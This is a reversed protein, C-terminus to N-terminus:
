AARGSRRVPRELHRRLSQPLAARRVVRAEAGVAHVHQRRDPRRVRHRPLGGGGPAVGGPLARGIAEHHQGQPGRDGQAPRGAARVRLRLPRHAREGQPHHAQDVRGRRPRGHARDRRLPGRHERARGCPRRGRLSVASGPHEGGAPPERLPRTGQAPGRECQPVRFRRSHHDPGQPGGQHRPHLRHGIQPLPTGYKEMVDAGAEMDVWEIRVGTAAVAVKTAAMIEPGIGDGPICTVRHENM